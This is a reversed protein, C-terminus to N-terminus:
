AGVGTDTDLRGVPPILVPDVAPMADNPPLGVLPAEVEVPEAM